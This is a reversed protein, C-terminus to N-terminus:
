STDASYHPITKASSMLTCTFTFDGAPLCLTITGRTLTAEGEFELNIYYVTSDLTRKLLYSQEDQAVIETQHKEPSNWDTADDAHGGSPYPFRLNVQMMGKGILSSQLAVALQDRDPHVATEVVASDTGIM